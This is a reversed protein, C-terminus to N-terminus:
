PASINRNLTRQLTKYQCVQLLAINMGFCTAFVHRYCYSNIRHKTLSFLHLKEADRPSDSLLNM